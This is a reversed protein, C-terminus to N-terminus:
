YRPNLIVDVYPQGSISTRSCQWNSLNLVTKTPMTHHDNQVTDGSSVVMDAKRATIFLIAILLCYEYISNVRKEFVFQM